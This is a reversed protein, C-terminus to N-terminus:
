YGYSVLDLYTENAELNFNSDQLAYFCKEAAAELWARSDRDENLNQDRFQLEFWRIAPSTLSGHISAALTNCADIATSDFVERNDRWTVSHESSIDRFFDGRFPVVLKNIIEWVDEVTKRQSVLTDYRKRIELGDM